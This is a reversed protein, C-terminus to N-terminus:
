RALTIVPSVTNSGHAPTLASAWWPGGDIRLKFRFCTEGYIFKVHISSAAEIGGKKALFYQSMDALIIDGETGLTQCAEIPIVPIGYLMDFPQGSLGGAPMYVLQGATGAALNMKHLQPEVDQHVFWRANKRGAGWLRARMKIINEALVTAADQGTEVDVAIKCGSNMIGLPQGGGLGNVIAEDIEVSMEQPFIENVFSTLASADALLEDTAYLLGFLSNLKLEFRGFAPKKATVTGAEYSWYIQLGGMRSGRARSTESIRNFVVSNSPSSITIPKCLSSVIGTEYTRNLLGETFDTQVLYAGESDISENMGSARVEMLRERASRDENSRMVDFLQEGIHTYPRKAARDAGARIEPETGEAPDIKIPENVPKRIETEFGALREEQEIQKKLADIADMGENLRKDEDETRTEKDALTRSDTVLAGLKERLKKLKENM